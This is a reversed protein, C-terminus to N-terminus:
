PKKPLGTLSKATAELSELYDKLPVGYAANDHYPYISDGHIAKQGDAQNVCVYENATKHLFLLNTHRIRFNPQSEDIYVKGSASEVTVLGGPAEGRGKVVQLLQVQARTADVGQNVSIIYGVAVLDAQELLQATEMHTVALAYAPILLMTSVLLVSAFKMPDIKVSARLKLVIFFGKPFNM